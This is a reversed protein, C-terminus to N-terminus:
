RNQKWSRWLQAVSRKQTQADFCASNLITVMDCATAPYDRVTISKDTVSEIEHGTEGALLYTGALEPSTPVSDKVRFVRGEVATVALSTRPQPLSIVTAGCKLETGDLLYAQLLKGDPGVSAFGFHGSMSMPGYQRPQEDRASIIYDTRDALEVAAAMAGSRPDNVILRASRVPSSEGQYPSLVVAYQSHANQEANREALIQQIPPAHLQSGSDSRWGPADAVVLRDVPNLVTADLRVQNCEWTATFPAPSAAARLNSLWRIQENCPEPKPGTLRILPGNGNLSYRHQRGGKVRFFDVAYTGGGPIQVLVCTRRYEDCQSYANASAQVVECGAARGFLELNSHCSAGDQNKGDVTVLNHALTSSTWANRPDDWIYGRDSALEAGHALYIIGLTDWHRHGGHAYGNFYFATHDRVAGGRLVGVHWGPFWESRLPLQADAAAKLDPARYWLAYESGRESLTAGQAKELLGAYQAGYHDTLIEAYIASLGSGAHTDGIVPYRRNPDLMRVMSELALRYREVYQFPDFNRLLSGAEPQYGEPDSYGSLIEPINQMLSLHMDSYSPSEHCFGDVHFCDRMLSEFGALGRRVSSPRQFVIGVAASLARGPGSKNNIDDWHETDACGALILDNVIRQEMDRSLVPTGDPRLAERILDYAVTVHLIAGGDSGSCGLRGAGWFGNCLTAYGERQHRGAFATIITETPFQGAPPNKGMEAAAEAPPCDAYTGDYSHFLYNPYAHAFRDMIWAAREAYSVDGTLAYLKALPLIQSFCWGAKRSRLIGSWSSHVPMGAWRFAYTGSKDDPHAREQETLYFTYTQGMKPATMSGTEPYDPNPYVTRCYKCTLQDPNEISWEYIGCEGMSSLKDVCVPCNQGYESWPTLEPIMKEFFERDQRMAYEVSRKWDELIDRAWPYRKVNERTGAINRAKYLTCPAGWTMQLPAAALLLALTVPFRYPSHECNM